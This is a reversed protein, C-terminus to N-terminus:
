SVPLQVVQQGTGTECMYFDRKITERPKKQRNTELKKLIRSRNCLTRNIHQLQRRYGQIKDM